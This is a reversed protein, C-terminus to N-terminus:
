AKKLQASFKCYGDLTVNATTANITGSVNMTGGQVQAKTKFAGAANATAQFNRQPRGEQQFIGKVDTGNVTVDVKMKYSSCNGSGGVGGSSGYGTWTYTASQALAALSISTVAALSLLFTKRM